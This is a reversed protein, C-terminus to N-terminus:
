KRKARPAPPPTTSYVALRLDLGVVDTNMDTSAIQMRELAVRQQAARLQEVFAVARPFPAQIQLTIPLKSGSAVAVLKGPRFGALSVGAQAATAHLEKLLVPALQDPPGPWTLAGVQGRLSRVQSELRVNETKTRAVERAMEELSKGGTMGQLQKLTPMGIFALVLVCVGILMGERRSLRM